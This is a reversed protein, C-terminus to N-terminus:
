PEWTMLTARRWGNATKVYIFNNDWAIDGVNGNVDSPSTPTYSTRMRIQNYGTSGSIDLRATPSTTQIGVKIPSSADYFIVANPTSTSFDNGFAFTNDAADTIRVKRGLAVSHDGDATDAEGGAVTACYGSAAHDYGGGVFAAYGSATNESGGVVAALAGSATNEVGGGVTTFSKGAINHRGGGVTCYKFNQGSTGTTSALGLNVHTSDANGYLTNGYRAIGWAGKTILTTDATDTVRFMWDIDAGATSQWTGVGSADSTLVRGASAGNPMKFGTIQATGAVDLKEQPSPTGIGVNGTLRYVNLGSTDIDWDNDPTSSIAFQATDTKVSRFAYAVSVMAKRLTIEPDGGVKVGLYRITGDFVSDPIANMSGLLVNFVGKEVKVSTQTESWKSSIGNSDAYITFVMQITTDLPAGTSKTLKGQYNILQPVTAFSSAILVIFLGITLLIFARIQCSLSHSPKM